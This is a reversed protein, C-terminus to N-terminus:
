RLTSLADLQAAESVVEELVNRHFSGGIVSAAQLVHKKELPLRDIRAMVADQVTGPIEFSALKETAFFSGDRLEVAGADVLTRVVEEIYFPNGRAKEEILTRTRHPIDGGRFLNRVLRRAAGPDLPRIPLELHRGAHRERAFALIRGATEEFGPRFVHLFLIPHDAALRLLSELLEITSLDAWHLDEMVVVAPRLRSGERLLQTIGGRIVKELLEGPIQDLREREEESLPLGMLNALLPLVDPADEGLIGALAEDLKDRGRDEDDDTIGAWSRLLDAIAHFSLNRGTSLSRGEFWALDSAEECAALEAVLRSKGIGAEAILSVIGGEGRGVAALRERVQALEEERGVLESAIRRGVGFRARHLHPATSLVEWAPIPEAGDDLELPQAPRYDFTESTFRHTEPDVYIEGSTAAHTLDDALDVHDGMVAFERIMPGSIDGAIGLGTAIGTHVDLRQELGREDNFAQIRRRMDIAANVAARPADEIAEPVGFLAMVCDGHHKDVTGGHARAVADLEDLAASVVPYAAQAGLQETMSTFGSIDAFLVTARRRETESTRGRGAEQERERRLAPALFSAMILRAPNGSSREVVLAVTEDDVVGRGAVATVLRGAEADGLPGLEIAEAAEASLAAVRARLREAAEGEPRQSAIFLTPRDEAADLLAELLSLSEPDLWQADELLLLLPGAAADPCFVRVVAERTRAEREAAPLERVRRGAAGPLPADLLAALWPAIAQVETATSRRALAATLKARREDATDGVGIGAWASLLRVITRRPREHDAASIRLQVTDLKDLAESAGLEALLRSKGIGEEGELIVLGGRGRAVREAWRTLRGLEQERGVLSAFIFEDFGLRGQTPVEHAAVLEYAPVPKAKGKLTLPELTRYAFRDGTEEWTLRGVLIQGDSARSNLRAATNVTDGLVNFERAVPGGRVDGAVFSGTNLGIHIGLPLPVDAERNYDVVRERMELAGDAAARSPHELPVPYGFVAILKDGLYKDVSGGHKRAIGDLLRLCRTVMLYATETGLDRSLQGFGIVDAFLVAGAVQEAHRTPLASQSM